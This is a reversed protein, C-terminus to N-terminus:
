TECIKYPKSNKSKEINFKGSLQGRVEDDSTVSKWAWYSVKSWLCIILRDTLYILIMVQLYQYSVFIFRTTKNSGHSVGFRNILTKGELEQLLKFCYNIQESM